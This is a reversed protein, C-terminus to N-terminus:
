FRVHYNQQSFSIQPSAHPRAQPVSMMGGHTAGLSPSSSAHELERRQQWTLPRTRGLRSEYYRDVENSAADAVAGIYGIRAKELNRPAEVFTRHQWDHMKDIRKNKQQTRQTLTEAREHGTRARWSSAETARDAWRQNWAQQRHVKQAQQDHLNCSANHQKSLYRDEGNIRKYWDHVYLRESTEATNVAKANRKHATELPEGTPAMRSYAQLVNSM